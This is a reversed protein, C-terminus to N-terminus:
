SAEGPEPRRIRGSCGAEEVARLHAEQLLFLYRDIGDLVSDWVMEREGDSVHVDLDRYRRAAAIAEDIAAREPTGLERQHFRLLRLLWDVDRTWTPNALSRVRLYGLGDWNRRSHWKRSDPGPLFRPLPRMDAIREGRGHTVAV